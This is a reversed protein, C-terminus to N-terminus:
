FPSRPGRSYGSLSSVNSIRVVILGALAPVGLLSPNDRNGGLIKLGYIPETLYASKIDM